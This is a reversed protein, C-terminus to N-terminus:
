STKSHENSLVVTHYGSPGPDIPINSLCAPTGPVELLGSALHSAGKVVLQRSSELLGWFPGLHSLPIGSQLLFEKRSQFEAEVNILLPILVGVLLVLLTNLVLEKLLTPLGVGAQGMRLLSDVEMWLYCVVRLFGLNWHAALRISDIVPFFGQVCPVLVHLKLREHSMMGQLTEGLMTYVMQAAMEWLNSWVKIDECSMGHKRYRFNGLLYFAAIHLSFMTLQIAILLVYHFRTPMPRNGDVLSPAYRLIGIIWCFALFFQFCQQFTQPGKERERMYREENRLETFRLM